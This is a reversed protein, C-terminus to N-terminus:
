GVKWFEAVTYVETTFNCAVGFGNTAETIECHHQVEFTKSSAITFRGKIISRTVALTTGDYAVESTGTLTTTADTINQLRAQHRRVYFAPVSIEVEYTGAALTIQNSALSSHGGADNVETNLTRTQWAGSTFTGGNTNQTKEDRILIYDRSGGIQMWTPTVATLMWLSNDDTQRALKGVDAPDFGTAGTRAAANAYTWNYPIHNDGVAVSSHKTM